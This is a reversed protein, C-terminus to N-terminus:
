GIRLKQGAKIKNSNLNNLKKITEVSLGEYMRSIYWLSEGPKVVHTKGAPIPVVEVNAKAYTNSPTKYGPVKWIVLRQGIRITNSRLNNWRRLDSVRVHYREAILGLVDGSKVRYVHKEKGFPSLRDVKAVLLTESQSLNASKKLIDDKNELWHEYAYEPIRMKFNKRHMPVVEKKIQPNLRELEELDVLLLESFKSLSLNQSFEIERYKPFHKEEPNFFGHDEAYNMVYTIAIFQPVYSRTERPLWRYVEWFDRQYGSRRIAKRVNGPGCNYAALALPWDNFMNHLYKLYDCAAQTSAIPDMRDDVLLDSKLGYQRGTSYVFQWLGVAYAPSVAKPDLGSEVISLYKLEEPLGNKKLTEEFLPFYTDQLNIVGQTYDRNRRTFYDIFGKVRYNYPLPIENEICDLRDQLLGEELELYNLECENNGAFSPVTFLLLAFVIHFSRLKMKLIIRLLSCNQKMLHM